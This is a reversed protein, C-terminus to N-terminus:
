KFLHTQPDLDIGLLSKVLYAILLGGGLLLLVLLMTLGGAIFARRRRGDAADPPADSGVQLRVYFREGAVRFPLTLRVLPTDRAEAPPPEDAQRAPDISRM